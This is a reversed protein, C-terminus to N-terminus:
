HLNMPIITKEIECGKSWYVINQSKKEFTTFVVFTKKLLTSRYYVTSGIRVTAFRSGKM